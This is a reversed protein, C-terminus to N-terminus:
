DKLICLFTAEVFVTFKVLQGEILKQILEANEQRGLLNSVSEATEVFIL